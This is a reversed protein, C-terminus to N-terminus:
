SVGIRLYKGNLDMNNKRKIGHEYRELAHPIHYMIEYMVDYIDLYKYVHLENINPTVLQETFLKDKWLM